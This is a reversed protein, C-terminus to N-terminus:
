KDNKLFSTWQRSFNENLESAIEKLENKAEKWLIPSFPSISRDTIGSLFISSRADSIEQILKEIDKILVNTSNVLGSVKTIESNLDKRKNAVNEPESPEGKGPASGLVSLSMNVGNLKKNLISSIGFLSDRYVILIQNKSKLSDTPLKKDDFQKSIDKYSTEINSLENQIADLDADQAHLTFSAILLVILILYEPLKRKNVWMKM